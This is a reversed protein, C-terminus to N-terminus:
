RRMEVSAPKSKSWRKPSNKKWDERAQADGQPHTTDPALKRWGHRYLMRYISSLSLKTGLREDILPKIQPVVVVQGETADTLVQELIRAEEELSVTARNRLDHKSRPVTRRGERIALFRTRLTCTRGVSRGIAQATQQMSLGLALPLLVAQAQRLEDATKASHLLEKAAEIHKEGSALRAM